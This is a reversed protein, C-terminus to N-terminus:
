ESAPSRTTQTFGPLLEAIRERRYDFIRRLDRRVFLRHALRGLPGFPMAYRIRDTMMTGGQGDPEFWHTHEWLRYPGRVQEDVFCRGPEWRVIRTTWRVPIGRVRLRYGILAGEELQSAELSVIQFRMWGPTVAELNRAEGFFEFAEEPPVPLRQRQEFNNVRM